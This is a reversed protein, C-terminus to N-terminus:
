TEVTLITKRHEIRWINKNGVDEIITGRTNMTKVTEDTLTAM